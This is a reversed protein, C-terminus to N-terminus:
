GYYSKYQKYYYGADGYGYRAQKRMDVATLLVGIFTVNDRPLLRLAARIAQERTKRWRVAFVVADVKTAMSRGDALALIPPSDIVIADYTDRLRALLADMADSTLLYDQEHTAQGVALIHLGTGEDLILAQQLTAEGRLVELIGSRVSFGGTLRDVGRRRLDADILITKRDHLALSRALAISTTTKGEQPLASTVLVVKPEGSAVAFKLAARLSRFAEAYASRQHTVVSDLPNSGGGEISSVLPVTGLFRQGLRREVDDATTMGTSLLEALFAAFVGAGCGLAAGLLLYLPINPSSPSYPARAPSIISAEPRLTGEQASTQGLRTLYSEYLSQSADAKRTLEDLKVMAENNSRLSSKAGGLSGQLSAVRQGSVQAKAELNSIVRNIEAQIQADIDRLQNNATIVDPYRPGYRGQLDAVRSSVQARQARLSQVVPSTLAEGVDDGASGNRLQQRATSLRAVDESAEARATAVQQNYVSIEQETVTSGTTSLLNNAIRYQQVAATDFEAQQRLAEVRGELLSVAQRNSEIKRDLNYTAYAAAFANAIRAAKAPERATYFLDITYTQGVRRASVRRLVADVVNDMVTAASSQRVVPRAEEDAGKLGSLLRGLPSSPRTAPALAFNFEPDKTLDLENVVKIALARSQVIAVETDIASESTNNLSAVTKDPTSPAVTQGAVDIMLRASATYVPNQSFTYLAVAIFITAAISVFLWFRRRFTSMIQGFDLRDGQVPASFGDIM